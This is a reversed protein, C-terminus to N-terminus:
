LRLLPRTDMFKLILHSLISIKLPSIISPLNEISKLGFPNNGIDTLSIIQPVVLNIPVAKLFGNAFSISCPSQASLYFNM